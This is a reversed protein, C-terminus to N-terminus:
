GHLMVVLPLAQGHYGSPLYLKYDRTGVQNTFCGATFAGPQPEETTGQAHEPQAVAGRFKLWKDRWASSLGSDGGPFSGTTAQRSHGFTSSPAEAPESTRDSGSGASAPRSTAVEEDVVRCTGEFTNGARYPEDPTEEGRTGGKGGPVAGQLLAMAEHFKGARTLRTAEEMRTMTTDIM